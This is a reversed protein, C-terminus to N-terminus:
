DHLQTSQGLEKLRFAPEPLWYGETHKPVPPSKQTRFAQCPPSLNGVKPGQVGHEFPSAKQGALAIGKLKGAPSEVAPKDAGTARLPDRPDKGKGVHRFKKSTVGGPHALGVDKCCGTKLLKSDL